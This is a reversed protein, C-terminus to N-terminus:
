NGTKAKSQAERYWTLLGHRVYTIGLLRNKSEEEPMAKGDDDVVDEFRVVIDDLYARHGEPTMHDHAMIEDASLVRFRTRLKQEEHGDDVPVMIPVDHTFQPNRAIKFM